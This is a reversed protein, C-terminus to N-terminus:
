LNIVKYGKKNIFVSFLRELIFVGIPYDKMGWSELIPKIHEQDSQSKRRLYGSPLDFVPNDRMFDIAPALCNSVYDRYIESRAIFHNEYIAYDVTEPIRIFKNFEQVALVAPEHHWQYLKNLIDKHGRPTLIAIDFDAGLIKDETLVKDSLKFMDNRKAALRWSCLGILKSSLRPVVDAIVSNEFYPTVTENKYIKSFTYCAEKQSEEYIIQIFDLTM